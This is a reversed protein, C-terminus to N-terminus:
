FMWWTYVTDILDHFWAYGLSSRGCDVTAIVQTGAVASLRPESEIRATALIYSSRDDDRQSRLSVHDLTAQRKRGPEGPLAFTVPRDPTSRQRAREIKAAARDSLKLELHWTGTLNGITLLKQGRVVPRATLRERPNWTILVGSQPSRIQLEQQQQQLLEAQADLGRLQEALEQQEATIATFRLRDEATQRTGQMREAEISAIRQQVTLRQGQVQKMQLDLDPRRMTILLQGRSITAGHDVQLTDIIGDAPAYIFAMEQPQLTGDVQIKLDAPIAVLATILALGALFAFTWRRGKRGDFQRRQAITRLWSYCPIRQQELVNALGSGIAPTLADIHARLLEDMQGEFREVVLVGIPSRDINTRERAQPDTDLQDRRVPAYLPVAVLVVAPSHDRFVELTAQDASTMSDVHRQDFEIPENRDTVHTGLRELQKIVESTRDVSSVGSSAIWHCHAGRKQLLSVRDAAVLRRFENVLQYSWKTLEESRHADMAFQLRDAAGACEARYCRLQEAQYHQAVLELSAQLFSSLLPEPYTPAALTVIELLGSREPMATWPHLYRVHPLSTTTAGPAVDSETVSHGARILESIRGAQEPWTSALPEPWVGATAVRRPQSEARDQLWFAGRVAGLRRVLLETVRQPYQGASTGDRSLAVVEDLIQDLAAQAAPPEPTPPTPSASVM